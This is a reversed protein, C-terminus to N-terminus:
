SIGYLKRKCRRSALSVLWVMCQLLAQPRIQFGFLVACYLKAHTQQLWQMALMEMIYWACAPDVIKVPVWHIAEVVPGSRQIGM